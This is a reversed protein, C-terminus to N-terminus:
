LVERLKPLRELFDKTELLREVYVPNEPSRPKIRFYAEEIMPKVENLKELTKYEQLKKIAKDTFIKSFDMSSQSDKFLDVFSGLSQKEGTPAQFLLYMYVFLKAYLEAYAKGEPTNAVTRQKVSALVREFPTKPESIELTPYKVDGTESTKGKTFVTSFEQKIEEQVADRHTSSEKKLTDLQARYKLIENSHQLIQRKETEWLHIIKIIESEKEDVLFRDHATKASKREEALHALEKKTEVSKAKLLTLLIPLTSSVSEIPTRIFKHGLIARMLYIQYLEHLYILAAKKAIQIDLPSNSADKEEKEKEKIQEDLEHFISRDFSRLHEMLERKKEYLSGNNAYYFDDISKELSHCKSELKEKEAWAANFKEKYEGNLVLNFNVSNLKYEITHIAAILRYKDTSFKHELIEFDDLGAYKEEAVNSAKIKSSLQDFQAPITKYDEVEKNIKAFEEELEKLTYTKIPVKAPTEAPKEEPKEAPKEAPKEEAENPINEWEEGDNNVEHKVPKTEKKKKLTIGARKFRALARIKAQNRATGSSPKSSSTQEIVINGPKRQRTMPNVGQPNLIAEQQENIKTKDEM